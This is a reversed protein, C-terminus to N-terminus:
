RVCLLIRRLNILLGCLYYMKYKVLITFVQEEISLSKLNVKKLAEYFTQQNLEEKILEHKKLYKIKCDKHFYKQRFITNISIVVKEYYADMFENNNKEYTNIYKRMHKYLKILDNSVENSYKGWTSNPNMRYHYLCKQFYLIKNSYRFAYLNFIKDQARKLEPEFILNNKTILSKRYAKGWPASCDHNQPFYESKNKSFFQMLLINKEKNAFTFNEKYINNKITKKPFEVYDDCIIIDIDDTIRENFEYLYDKEIWDDPDIFIIWKGKSKKIGTNRAVSVGSNKQYIYKIKENEYKKCITSTKDNSGDDILLLEYDTFSQSIVSKICQELYKEMNYIPVIISFKPKIM